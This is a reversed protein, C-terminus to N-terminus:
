GILYCTEYVSVVVTVTGVRCLAYLLYRQIPMTWGALSGVGPFCAQVGRLDTMMQVNTMSGKKVVALSHYYDVIRASSSSPSPSRNAYVEKLIPVLSHYRGGVFVDGADVTMINPNLM